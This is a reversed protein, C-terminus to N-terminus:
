ELLEVPDGVTLTGPGDHLLNQGFYIVGDRRRFRALTRLPEATTQGSAGASVATADVPAESKGPDRSTTAQPACGALALSLFAINAGHLLLSHRRNGRRAAHATDDPVRSNM